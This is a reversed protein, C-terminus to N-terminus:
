LFIDRLFLDSCADVTGLTLDSPDFMIEYMIASCSTRLLRLLTTLRFDRFCHSLNMDKYRFVLGNM